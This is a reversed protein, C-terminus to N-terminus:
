FSQQFGYRCSQTPVRNSMGTGGVGKRIVGHVPEASRFIWCHIGNGRVPFDSHYKVKEVQALCRVFHM